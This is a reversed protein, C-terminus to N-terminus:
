REGERTGGLIGWEKELTGNSSEGRSVYNGRPDGETGGLTGKMLKDHSM